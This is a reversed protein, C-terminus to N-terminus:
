NLVAFNDQARVQTIPWLLIMAVTRVSVELFLTGPRCLGYPDPTSLLDSSTIEAGARHNSTSLSKSKSITCTGPSAFWSASANDRIYLSSGLPMTRASDSYTEASGSFAGGLKISFMTEAGTYVPSDINRPAVLELHLARWANGFAFRTTRLTESRECGRSPSLGVSFEWFELSRLEKSPAASNNTSCAVSAATLMGILMLVSDSSTGISISM